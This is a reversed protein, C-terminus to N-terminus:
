RSVLSARTRPTSRREYDQAHGRKCCVSREAHCPGNLSWKPHEPESTKLRAHSFPIAHTSTRGMPPFTLTRTHQAGKWGNAHTVMSSDVRASNHRHPRPTNKWERSTHMTIRVSLNLVCVSVWFGDGNPDLLASALALATCSHVMLTARRNM